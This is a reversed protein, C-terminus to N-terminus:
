YNRVFKASRAYIGTNLKLVMPPKLNSSVYPMLMIRTGTTVPAVVKNSTANAVPGKEDDGTLDVVDTKKKKITSSVLVAKTVKNGVVNNSMIPAHVKIQNPSDKPKLPPLQRLATNAPKPPTTIQLSFDRKCISVSSFYLSQKVGRSTQILKM